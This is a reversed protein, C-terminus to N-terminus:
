VAQLVNFSVIGLTQSDTRHNTFTLRVNGGGANYYQFDINALLTKVPTIQLHTGQGLGSIVVTIQKREGAALTGFDASVTSELGIFHKKWSEWTTSTANSSRFYVNRAAYFIQSSQNSGNQVTVLTGRSTVTPLSQQATGTVVPDISIKNLPFANPLTSGNHKELGTQTNLPHYAADRINNKGDKAWFFEQQNIDIINGSIDVGETVNVIDVNVSQIYQILQELITQAAADHETQGCHLMFILWSKNAIATDVQAKYNDLTWGTTPFALRGLGFTRLPTNNQIADTACAAKYYRSAIEKAYSTSQGYPYVLTEINLGWERLQRWSEYMELHQQEVSMTNDIVGHTKSHSAIEFGHNDQLDLLDSVGISRGDAVFDSPVGITFPINYTQGLPKLKTLVAPHGDDDVFTVIPINRKITTVSVDRKRSQIIREDNDVLQQNTAVEEADLRAKLTMYSTGDVAVRAQAAEPSSDGDVVLQDIQAQYDQVENEIMGWNENRKNRADGDLAVGERNLILAM